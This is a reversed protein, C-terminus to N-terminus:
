HDMCDHDDDHDGKVWDPVIISPVINPDTASAFFERECTMAITYLEIARNLDIQAHDELYMTNAMKEVKGSSDKNGNAWFYYCYKDTMNPYLQKAIWAWLRECPMLVILSYLLPLNPNKFVTHQFGIYQKVAPTLTVSSKIDGIMHWGKMMDNLYGKYRDRRSEAFLQIDDDGVAVAHIRLLEWNEISHYIYAMDQLNFPAYSDASLSNHLMGQMLDTQYAEEAIPLASKWLTDGLPLTQGTAETTLKQSDDEATYPVITTAEQTQAAKLFVHASRLKAKVRNKIAEMRRDWRAALEDSM